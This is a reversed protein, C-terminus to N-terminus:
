RGHEQDHQKDIRQQVKLTRDYRDRVKDPEVYHGTTTYTKYRITVRAVNKEPDDTTIFAVFAKYGQEKLMLLEYIRSPHSTVTEFAFSEKGSSYM